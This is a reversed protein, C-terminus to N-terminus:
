VKPPDLHFCNVLFVAILVVLDEVLAYRNSIFYCLLIAHETAPSVADSGIVIPM